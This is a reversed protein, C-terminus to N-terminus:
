DAIQILTDTRKIHALASNSFSTVKQVNESNVNGKKSDDAVMIMYKGASKSDGLALVWEKQADQYKASLNYQDNEKLTKDSDDIINQGTIALTTYDPTKTDNISTGVNGFDTQLLLSNNHVSEKWATDQAASQSAKKENNLGTCGVALMSALLVFLIIYTYKKL